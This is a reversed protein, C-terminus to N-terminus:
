QTLWIECVQEWTHRHGPNGVFIEGFRLAPVQLLAIELKGISIVKERNSCMIVAGLSKITMPDLLIRM